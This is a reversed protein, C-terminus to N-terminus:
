GLLSRYADVYVLAGSLALQVLGLLLPGIWWRRMPRPAGPAVPSAALSALWILEILVIPECYRQWAESNCSQAALWGLLSLLLFTAARGHGAAFAARGAFVVVMAGLMAAPPFLMSCHGIAPLHRTLDWLGGYRGAEQDYVTPILLAALAAIILAVWLLADARLRRGCGALFVPLFFVGFLGCLALTLPIVAPNVGS